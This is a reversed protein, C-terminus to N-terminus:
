LNLQDQNGPGDQSKSVTHNAFCNEKISPNQNKTVALCTSTFSKPAPQLLPGSQVAPDTATGFAAHGTIAANKFQLASAGYNKVVLM